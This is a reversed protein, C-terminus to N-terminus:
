TVKRISWHVTRDTGATKKMTVDWGDGVTGVVIRHPGPDGLIYQTREAGQTSSGAKEYIKVEYEDVVAMSAVYVAIELFCDDTQSTPVGTTTDAPLSYETTSITASDSTIAIGM